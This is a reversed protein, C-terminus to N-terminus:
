VRGVLYSIYTIGYLASILGNNIEHIPRLRTYVLFDVKHSDTGSLEFLKIKKM